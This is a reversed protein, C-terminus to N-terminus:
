CPPVLSPIQKVRILAYSTDVPQLFSQPSEYLGTCRARGTGHPLPEVTENPDLSCVRLLLM